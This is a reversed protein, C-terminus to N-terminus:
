QLHYTQLTQSYDLKMNAGTSDTQYDEFRVIGVGPAIYTVDTEIVINSCNTTYQINKLCTHGNIVTTSAYGYLTYLLECSPDSPDPGNGQGLLVNDSTSTEFIVDPSPTAGGATDTPVYQYVATNSPDIGLYSTTGLFGTSDYIGNFTINGNQSGVELSQSTVYVSDSVSNVYTGTGVAFNSDLYIWSNGATLPILIQSPVGTSQTNNTHTCSTAGAIVILGM